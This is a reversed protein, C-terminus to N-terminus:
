FYVTGNVQTPTPSPTPTPNYYNNQQQQQAQFNQAGEPTSWSGHLYYITNNQILAIGSNNPNYAVYQLAPQGNLTFDSVYKVSPSNTLIQRLDELTAGDKPYTEAFGTQQPTPTPTPQYTGAGAVQEGRPTVPQNYVQATPTPTPTQQGQPIPPTFTPNFDTPPTFVQRIDEATQTPTTKKLKKWAFYIGGAILVIVLVAIGWVVVPRASDTTTIVHPNAAAVSDNNKKVEKVELKAEHTETM